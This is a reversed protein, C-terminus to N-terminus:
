YKVTLKNGKYKEYLICKFRTNISSSSQDGREIIKITRKMDDELPCQLRVMQSWLPQSLETVLAVSMTLRAIELISHISRLETWVRAEVHHKKLAHSIMEGIASSSEYAVLREGNLEEPHILDTRSALPHDRAVVAVIRDEVLTDARLRPDLPDGKDTIMGLELEGNLVRKVVEASGSERVRISLGPHQALLDAIVEPLIFSVATAGGGITMLGSELNERSKLERKLQEWRMLSSRAEEELLSGAETLMPGSRGPAREFLACNLSQELNRIRLSVAPQSLNLHQAAASFSGWEIVALFARLLDENM